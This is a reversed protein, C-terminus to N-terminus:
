KKKQNKDKKTRNYVTDVIPIEVNKQEFKIKYKHFLFDILRQFGELFSGIYNKLEDLTHERNILENFKTTYDNEHIKLRIIQKLHMNGYINEEDQKPPIEDLSDILNKM